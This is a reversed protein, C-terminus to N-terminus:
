KKKKARPGFQIMGMCVLLLIFATLSMMPITIYGYEMFFSSSCNVSYGVTTCPVFPNGGRQLYYHYLALVGGMGALVMSYPAVTRDRRIAAVILLLPQPYM